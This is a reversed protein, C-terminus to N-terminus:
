LNWQALNIVFFLPFYGNNDNPNKEHGPIGKPLIRLIAHFPFPAFPWEPLKQV